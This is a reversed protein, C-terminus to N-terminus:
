PLQAWHSHGFDAEYFQRSLLSMLTGLKMRDLAGGGSDFQKKFTKKRSSRFLLSFKEVGPRPQFTLDVPAADCLLQEGILRPVARIPDLQAMPFEPLSHGIEWRDNRAPM